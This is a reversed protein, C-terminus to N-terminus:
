TGEYAIVRTDQSAQGVVAPDNPQSAKQIQVTTGCLGMFRNLLAMADSIQQSGEKILALHQAYNLIDDLLEPGIQLIDSTATPVPANRVVDLTITFNGGGPPVGPPPWLGVITQGATLIRRPIGSVMMWASDYLDADSVSGLEVSVGSVQGALVVGARKAMEIGHKWRADCYASREADLALGDRSFLDALAGFLVVWAWDDPVGLVQTTDLLNVSEGRDITLLDLTGAVNTVPALEVILPPTVGVSYAKPPASSATQYGKGYHTFGWNDDRRLVTTIGNGTKWALRRLNIIAESLSVRGDAAPAPVSLLSRTVIVGTELLFTDRATQLADVLDALNYQETGIWLNGDPAPEMLHRALEAVAQQTTYTFGRLNACVTQLDYFPEALTTQFTTKARFHNTLANYTRLAQQIHVTLEDAPWRVHDPDYLRRGMEGLAASLSITTYTGAM